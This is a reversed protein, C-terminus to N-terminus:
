ELNHSALEKKLMKIVVRDIPFTLEEEILNSLSKWRFTQSGNIKEPFDFTKTSIKFAPLEKLRAKYYISILQHDEYFLAKQFFGTTYYHSLIEIEQGFEEIAERKLCDETGEGPILGGGPLKTMYHDLVYEDSLLIENKENLIVGYVRINIHNIKEM